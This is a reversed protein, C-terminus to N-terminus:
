VGCCLSQVLIKKNKPLRFYNHMSIQQGEFFDRTFDRVEYPNFFKCSFVDICVAKAADVFHGSILSTEILQMMSYGAVAEDEGFKVVHCRGYRKMDILACLDVVYRQILYKNRIVNENCNELDLSCVLGWAQSEKYKSKLEEFTM